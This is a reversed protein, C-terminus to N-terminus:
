KRSGTATVSSGCMERIAGSSSTSRNRNRSRSGVGVAVRVGTGTGAGAQVGVGFTLGVGSGSRSILAMGFQFGKLSEVVDVSRLPAHDVTDIQYCRDVREDWLLMPSPHPDSTHHLKPDTTPSPGQRDKHVYRVNHALGPKAKASGWRQAGVEVDVM